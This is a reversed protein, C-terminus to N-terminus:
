GNAYNTKNHLITIPSFILLVASFKSREIEIGGLHTIGASWEFWHFMVKSASNAIMEAVVELLLSEVLRECESPIVDLDAVLRIANATVRLLEM